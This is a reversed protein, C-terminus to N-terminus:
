IEDEEDEEDEEPAPSGFIEDMLARMQAAKDPAAPKAPVQEALILEAAEEPDLVPLAPTEEM